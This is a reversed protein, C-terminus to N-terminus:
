AVKRKRSAVRKVPRQQDREALLRDLELKVTRGDDGTLRDVTVDVGVGAATAALDVGLEAAYSELSERISVSM